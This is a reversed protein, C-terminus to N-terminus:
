KSELHTEVRNLLSETKELVKRKLQRVREQEKLLEEALSYAVLVSAQHETMASKASSAFVDFKGQVLDKTQKLLAPTSDTKVKISAAGLSIETIKETGKSFLNQPNDGLNLEMEASM